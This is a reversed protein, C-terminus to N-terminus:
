IFPNAFDLFCTKYFFIFQSLFPYYFIHGLFSNHDAHEAGGQILAKRRLAPLTPTRGHGQTLMLIQQDVPQIQEVARRVLAKGEAPGGICVASGRGPVVPPVALIGAEM